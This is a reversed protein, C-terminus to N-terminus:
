ANGQEAESKVRFAEFNSALGAIKKRFDKVRLLTRAMEISYEVVKGKFSLGEWGLLTNGAMVDVMLTEALYDADPGGGELDIQNKELSKRLAAVYAPNGDRAVLVRANKGLPFWKGENEAKEDTAFTAFIDM